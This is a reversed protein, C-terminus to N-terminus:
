CQVGAAALAIRALEIKDRTSTMLTPALVVKLGSAEITAAQDQDSEDLVFADIWPHLYRAIEAASPELGLEVMIKDTPGKVAKGRILPSVAVSPVRRHRLAEAVGTIALMPALSLYPNSPCLIIASLYPDDFSAALARAPEADKAGEYRLSRVAPGCRHRVFYDQFALEGEDTTVITRVSDDTAPVVRARIGLCRRLHDVVESLTAGAALMQTRVLHLALDSDGLRFWTEGGLAELAAMAQWTEGERGWGLERNSLGSLTYLVTDIDPSIALGLHRFDDGTNCVILLREGPVVHSLGLALKAGGVGGCLALISGRANM